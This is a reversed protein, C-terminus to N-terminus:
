VKEKADKKKQYIAILSDQLVKSFNIQNKEAFTNLWAPITLNKRVAKEGYKEAYSDMDLVLMSVFGGTEPTISEIPSAEPIPKGDELEDLVWGSAADTGMLIADALNDGESICGPLDPVEVTYGGKKEECPYFCAPYTLKM